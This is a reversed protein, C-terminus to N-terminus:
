EDKQLQAQIRETMAERMKKLEPNDAIATQGVCGCALISGGGQRMREVAEMCCKKFKKNSNCVCPENPGTEIKKNAGKRLVGFYGLGKCKCKKDPWKECVVM